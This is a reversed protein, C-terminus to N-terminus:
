TPSFPKRKGTLQTIFIREGDKYDDIKIKLNGDPVALQFDFFVDHEIFPSVYFNKRMRAKYIGESYDDNNIFFPKLEHFTNGVEPVVCIPNDEKDFCFYFSVPNFNYGFTAM